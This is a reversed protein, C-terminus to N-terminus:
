RTELERLSWDPSSNADIPTRSQPLWDTIWETLRDNLCDILWDTQRCITNNKISVCSKSSISLFSWKPHRMLTYWTRWFWCGISSKYPSTLTCFLELSMIHQDSSLIKNQDFSEDRTTISPISFVYFDAGSQTLKPTFNPHSVAGPANYKHQDIWM